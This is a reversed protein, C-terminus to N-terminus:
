AKTRKPARPDRAPYFAGASVGPGAGSGPTAVAPTAAAGLGDRALMRKIIKSEIMGITAGAIFYLLFGAPFAYFLFGFFVMMFTMMRMQQQMQPDTPKPQMKQQLITLIVYIVPLINFDSGLIPLTFPLKFLRDPQTLDSIWLFPAHRLDVSFDISSYLAYWVPLQLFIMLCGGMMQAPNVQNEKFLKQMEQHMRMRDNGFKAKLADMQPKIVNMKKQYRMMSAQQRRNIPHLCLRVLVTLGVIALGWSFLVAHLGNLISLFLKVLPTWWGYYNIGALNFKEYEPESVIAKARPGMYLLYQHIVKEGPAISLPRSRLSVRTNRYAKDLYGKQQAADFEAWGRAPLDIRALRAAENQDRYFDAFGHDLQKLTPPDTTALVSAFYNNSVGIFAIRDPHPSSWQDQKFGSVAEVAVITEGTVGAEGYVLSLDQGPTRLSETGLGIPGWIRYRFPDIKRGSINELTVTAQIHFRGPVARIEKTIRLGGGENVFTAEVVGEPSPPYQWTEEAFRIDGRDKREFDEVTLGLPLPLDREGPLLVLEGKMDRSKFSPLRVERIGAGRNSVRVSLIAEKADGSLITLEEAREAVVPRASVAPAAPDGVSPAAKGETRAAPPVAAVAGPNAPPPPQRPPPFFINWGFIIAMCLAITLITRLTTGFRDSDTM